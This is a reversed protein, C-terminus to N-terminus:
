PFSTADTAWKYRLQTLYLLPFAYIYAQVGVSYAYQEKWNERPQEKSPSLPIPQAAM